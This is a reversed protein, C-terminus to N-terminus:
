PSVGGARLSVGPGAPAERRLQLMVALQEGIDNTECAHGARHFRELAVVYADRAKVWGDYTTDIEGQDDPDCADFADRAEDRAARAAGVQLSLVMMMSRRTM